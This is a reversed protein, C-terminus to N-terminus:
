VEDDKAYKKKDPFYTNPDEFKKWEDRAQSWRKKKFKKRFGKNPKSTM